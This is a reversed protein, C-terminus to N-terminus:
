YTGSGSNGDDDYWYYSGSTFSGDHYNEVAAYYMNPGSYEAETYSITYDVLIGDEYYNKQLWASIRGAEAPTVFMTMSGLIFAVLLLFTTGKLLNLM